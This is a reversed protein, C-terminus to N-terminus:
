CNSEKVKKSGNNLTQNRLPSSFLIHRSLLFLSTNLTNQHEFHHDWSSLGSRAPGGEEEEEEMLGGSTSEGEQHEGSCSEMEMEMEEEKKRYLRKVPFYLMEFEISSCTRTHHMKAEEDTMRHSYM